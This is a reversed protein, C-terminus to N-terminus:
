RPNSQRVRPHKRYSGLGKYALFGCLVAFALLALGIVGLGRDKHNGLWEGLGAVGGLGLVLAALLFIIVFTIPMLRATRGCSICQLDYTTGLPVVGNLYHRRAGVVLM